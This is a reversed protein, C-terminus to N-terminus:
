PHASNPQSAVTALLVALMACLPTYFWRDYRAFATGTVSRTLGVFKRDGITRVLFLAAIIWLVSRLVSRSLPSPAWGAFAICAYGCAALGAAVIGCAVRGPRIVPAGDVTTPIARSLGRRGGCAWYVHLIALVGFTIAAIAAMSIVAM